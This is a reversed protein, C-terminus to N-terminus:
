RAECRLEIVRSLEEDLVKAFASLPETFFHLLM